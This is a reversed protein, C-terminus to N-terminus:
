DVFEFYKLFKSEQNFHMFSGIMEPEEFSVIYYEAEERYVGKCVRVYYLKGVEQFRVGFKMKLRCPRNFLSSIRGVHKLACKRVTEGKRIDGFELPKNCYQCIWFRSVIEGSEIEKGVLRERFHAHNCCEAAYNAFDDYYGHVTLDNANM